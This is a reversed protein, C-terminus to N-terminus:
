ASSPMRSLTADRPSPSTYLLCVGAQANPSERVALNVSARAVPDGSETRVAAEISYDGSEKRADVVFSLALFLDVRTPFAPRSVRTINGSSVFLLGERVQAFDCLTAVSVKM